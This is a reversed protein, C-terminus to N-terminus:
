GAKKKTPIISSFGQLDESFTDMLAQYVADQSSYKLGMRSAKDSFAEWLKSVKPANAKNVANVIEEPVDTGLITEMAILTKERHITTYEKIGPRMHEFQRLFHLQKRYEKETAFKTSRSLAYKESAWQERVQIGGTIERPVTKNGEKEYATFANKIRRNALQTLRRFEEKQEKSLKINKPAKAM